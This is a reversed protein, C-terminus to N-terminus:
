TVIEANDPVLQSRNINPENMRDASDHLTVTYKDPLLLGLVPPFVSNWDGFQVTKSQPSGVLYPQLEQFWDSVAKGEIQEVVDGSELQNILSDTVLWEGGNEHLTMGLPPLQALWPDYFRTHGTNLLSLFAMM